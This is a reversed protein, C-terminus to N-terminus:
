KKRLRGAFVSALAGLMAGAIFVSLPAGEDTAMRWAGWAICALSGALMLGILIRLIAPPAKDAM